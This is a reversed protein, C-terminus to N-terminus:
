VAIQHKNVHETLRMDSKHSPDIATVNSQM